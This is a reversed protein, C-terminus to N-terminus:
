SSNSKRSVKAEVVMPETLLLRKLDELIWVMERYSIPIFEYSLYLLNLTFYNNLVYQFASLICWFKIFLLLTLRKGFTEIFGAASFNHASFGLVQGM